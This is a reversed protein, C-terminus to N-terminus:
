AADKVPDLAASPLLVYGSGRVTRLHRPIEADPEILRRLKRIMLHGALMQRLEADDEVLFLHKARPIM